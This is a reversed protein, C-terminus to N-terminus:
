GSSFSSGQHAERKKAKYMLQDAINLFEDFDLNIIPVEQSSVVGLSITIAINEENLTPIRMQDINKIIRKAAAVADKSSTNPLIIAFEDGGLRGFIDYPRISKKCTEAFDKLVQDGVAHGYMDNINKFKDLDIMIISIQTEPNRKIRNLEKQGLELIHKRNFTETLSDIIAQKQIRKFLNFEETCDRLTVISGKVQGLQNKIYSFRFEFVCVENTDKMTIDVKNKKNKGSSIEEITHNIVGPCVESLLRGVCQCTIGTIKTGAPNIDLIRKKLDLVIVGDDMNEIVADRAMPLLDLFNHRYLAWVIILCSLSFVATTFNIYPIPSYGLVYFLDTMSPITIAAIMMAVQPRYVAHIRFFRRILLSISVLMIIYSYPAHVFYFWFGYHYDITAFPISDGTFIVEGWFWNPRPFFWLITNTIIPIIMLTLWQTKSRIYGLYDLVINLWALPLFAIAIFQFKVMLVKLPLTQATIELTFSVTWLLALCLLILFAHGSYLYRKKWIVSILALLIGASIIFIWIEPLYIM